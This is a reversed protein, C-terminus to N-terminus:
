TVSCTTVIHWQASLSMTDLLSMTDNLFYHCQIVSCTTVNHWQGLLSVTDHVLYHCMTVSWTTVSHWQALLSMTDSLLYNGIHWLYHLAKISLLLWDPKQKRCCRVVCRRFVLVTCWTQEWYERAGYQRVVCVPCGSGLMGYWIVIM